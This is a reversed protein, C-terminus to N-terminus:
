ILIPSYTSDISDRLNIKRSIIEESTVNNLLSISHKAFNRLDSRCMRHIGMNM